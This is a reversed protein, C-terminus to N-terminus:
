VAAAGLAVGGPQERQCAGARDNHNPLVTRSREQLSGAIGKGVKGVKAKITVQAHQRGGKRACSALGLFLAGSSKLSRWPPQSITAM